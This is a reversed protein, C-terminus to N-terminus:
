VEMWRWVCIYNGCMDGFCCGCGIWFFFGFCLFEVRFGIGIFVSFFFGIGICFNWM